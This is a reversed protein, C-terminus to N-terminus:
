LLKNFFTAPHEVKINRSFKKVGYAIQLMCGPNGTLVIDAKTNELNEIKMKLLQNSIDSHILNYIGASGCCKTSDELPIYNLGRIQNLL